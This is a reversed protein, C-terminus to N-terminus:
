LQNHFIFSFVISNQQCLKQDFHTACLFNSTSHFQGFSIEKPHIKPMKRAPMSSNNLSLERLSLFSFDAWNSWIPYLKSKRINYTKRFNELVFYSFNYPKQLIDPLTSTPNQNETM